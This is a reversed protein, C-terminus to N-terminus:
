RAQLNEMTGTATIAPQQQATPRVTLLLALAFVSPLRKM